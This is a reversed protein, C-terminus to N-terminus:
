PKSRSFYAGETVVRRGDRPSSVAVVAGRGVSCVSTGGVADECAVPEAALGHDRAFQRAAEEPSRPGDSIARAAAFAGVGVALFLALLALARRV